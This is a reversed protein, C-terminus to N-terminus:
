DIIEAVSIDQLIASFSQWIHNFFFSSNKDFVDNNQINRVM